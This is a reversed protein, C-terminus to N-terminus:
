GVQKEKQFSGACSDCFPADRELWHVKGLLYDAYDLDCSCAVCGFKSNKDFEVKSYEPKLWGAVPKIASFHILNDGGHNINDAKFYEPAKVKRRNHFSDQSYNGSHRYPTVVAPELPRSVTEKSIIIDKKGLEFTVHEDDPMTQIDGVLSIKARAAAIKIMWAESAYMVFNSLPGVYYHLTREKNRFLHYTNTDSDYWSLAIAGRLKKVIDQLSVGKSLAYMIRESDTQGVIDASTPLEHLGTSITGNHAGVINGHHFPHANVANVAGITKARNHGMVWSFNYSNEKEFDGKSNFIEPFKAYLKYPIGETKVVTTKPAESGVKTRKFAVGTSDDGRVTDLHLLWRFADLQTGLLTYNAIVGVLGCM